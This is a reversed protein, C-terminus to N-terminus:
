KFKIPQIEYSQFVGFKKTKVIKFQDVESDEMAAKTLLLDSEHLVSILKVLTNAIQSVDNEKLYEKYAKKEVNSADGITLAEYFKEADDSVVVQELTTILSNKNSFTKELYWWSGAIVIVFTGLIIALKKNLFSPTKKKQVSLVQESVETEYNIAMASPESDNVFREGCKVCFNGNGNHVHECVKPEFLEAVPAQTHTSAVDTTCPDGCKICFKTNADNEYQCANNECIKKENM